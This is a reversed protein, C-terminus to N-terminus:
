VASKSADYHMMCFLSRERTRYHREWFLYVKMQLLLGCINILRALTELDVERIREKFLKHRGYPLGSFFQKMFRPQRNCIFAERVLDLQPSKLGQLKALVYTSSGLLQTNFGVTHLVEAINVLANKVANLPKLVFSTQGGEGGGTKKSQLKDWVAEQEAKARLHQHLLFTKIFQFTAHQKPLATVHSSFDNLNVQRRL